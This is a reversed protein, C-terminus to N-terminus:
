FWMRPLVYKEIIDILKEPNDIDQEHTELFNDETVIKTYKMIASRESANCRYVFDDMMGEHEWIFVTGDAFMTKLDNYITITGRPPYYTRWISGPANMWQLKAPVNWHITKNNYTTLTWGPDTPLMDTDASAPAETTQIGAPPNKNTPIGTSISSGTFDNLLSAYLKDVLPQVYITMQEEYHLPVALDDCSNIIDRESKSRVPLGKTTFFAKSEDIYKQQFDGTFWNYQDKTLVIQLIDLHGREYARILKQLKLIMHNRRAIDGKKSSGSLKLIESLEVLYRRRALPYIRSSRRPLYKQKGDIITHFVVADKRESVYLKDNVTGGLRLKIRRTSASLDIPNALAREISACFEDATIGSVRVM